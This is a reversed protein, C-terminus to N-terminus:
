KSKLQSTNINLVQGYGPNFNANNYVLWILNKYWAPKNPITDYGDTMTIVITNRPNKVNKDVWNFADAFNTGGGGILKINPVQGLKTKSVGTISYDFTVYTSEKINLNKAIYNCESIMSDLMVDSISGSVDILYVIDNIANNESKQYYRYYDKGLYKKNGLRVSTNKSINNMFKRLVSKWNVVSQFQGLIEKLTNGIAGGANQLADKNQIMSKDWINQPNPTNAIEGMEEVTGDNAREAIKDGLAKDIFVGTGGFDKAADKINQSEEDTGDLGDTGDSNGAGQGSKSKSNSSNEKPLKDYIVEVPLGLFDYNILGGMAKTIGKDFIEDELAANIEYDGAKNFLDHNYNGQKERELHRLLNHMIEHALLFVKQEWDLSNMFVPNMFLRIGDTAATDIDFTWVDYLMNVFPRFLPSEAILAGKALDVENKLYDMDIDGKTTKITHMDKLRRTRAKADEIGKNVADSKAENLKKFIRVFM